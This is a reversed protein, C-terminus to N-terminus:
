FLAKYINFSFFIFFFSDTSFVTSFIHNCSPILLNKMSLSPQLYVADFGTNLNWGQDRHELFHEIVLCKPLSTRDNKWILAGTKTIIIGKNWFKKSFLMEETYASSKNQKLWGGAKKFTLKIKHSCWLEVTKRKLIKWLKFLYLGICKPFDM